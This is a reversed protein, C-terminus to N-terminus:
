STVLPLAARHIVNPYVLLMSWMVVEMTQVNGKHKTNTKKLTNRTEATVGRGSIKCLCSSNLILLLLLDRVAGDSHETGGLGRNRIFQTYLTTQHQSYIYINIISHKIASEM